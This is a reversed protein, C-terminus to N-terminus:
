EQGYPTKWHPHIGHYDCKVASETSPTKNVRHQIIFKVILSVSTPFMIMVM